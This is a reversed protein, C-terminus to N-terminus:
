GRYYRYNNRGSAKAQYMAKDACKVLEDADTSDDPYISIGISSGVQIKSGGIDTM